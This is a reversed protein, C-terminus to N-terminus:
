QNCTSGKKQEIEVCNDPLLDWELHYKALQSTGEYDVAATDSRAM